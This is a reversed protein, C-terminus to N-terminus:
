IISPYGNKNPLYKQVTKPIMCLFVESDPWTLEQSSQSTASCSAPMKRSIHSRSTYRRRAVSRRRLIPWIAPQEEIASFYDEEDDTLGTHADFYREEEEEEDDDRKRKPVQGKNRATWRIDNKRNKKKKPARPETLGRVTAV